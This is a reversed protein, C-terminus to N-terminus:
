RSRSTGSPDPGRPGWTILTESRVTCGHVWMRARNEVVKSTIKYWSNILFVLSNLCHNLSMAFKKKAILPPVLRAHYFIIFLHTSPGDRLDWSGQVIREIAIWGVSLPALCPISATGGKSGEDGEGGRSSYSSCRKCCWRPPASRERSPCHLFNRSQPPVTTPSTRQRSYRQEM